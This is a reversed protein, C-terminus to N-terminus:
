IEFEFFFCAADLQSEPSILSVCDLTEIDVRFDLDNVNIGTRLKKSKKSIRKLNSLIEIKAKLDVTAHQLM